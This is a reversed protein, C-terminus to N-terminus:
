AQTKTRRLELEVDIIADRMTRLQSYIGGMTPADSKGSDIDDLLIALDTQIVNLADAPPNTKTITPMNKTKMIPTTIPFIM